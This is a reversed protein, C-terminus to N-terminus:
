DGQVTIAMIIEFHEIVRAIIGFTCVYSYRFTCITTDAYVYYGMRLQLIDNSLYKLRKFISVFVILGRFITLM